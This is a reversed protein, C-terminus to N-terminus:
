VHYDFRKENRVSMVDSDSESIVVHGNVKGIEVIEPNNEPAKQNKHPIEGDEVDSRIQLREGDATKSNHKSLIKEGSLM